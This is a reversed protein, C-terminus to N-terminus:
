ISKYKRKAVTKGKASDVSIGIFEERETQSLEIFSLLASISDLENQKAIEAATRGEADRLRANAGAGLLLDITEKKTAPWGRGVAHMLATRGDNDQCDIESSKILRAIWATMDQDAALMLATRGRNDKMSTNTIPLLQDFFYGGGSEIAHMLANMGNVDQLNPDAGSLAMSFIEPQKAWVLKMLVSRGRSDQANVDSFPLLHLFSLVRNLNGDLDGPEDGLSALLATEGDANADRVNSISSLLRVSQINGARAALILATDGNEGAHKADSLPLLLNFYIDLRNRATYTLLSDGSAYAVRPDAKSNLLMMVLDRSQVKERSVGYKDKCAILRMLATNGDSDVADVDPCAGILIEACRIPSRRLRRSVSESDRIKDPTLALMLATIGTKNRADLNTVPCLKEVHDVFSHKVAVMLANAGDSDQANADSVPLLLELIPGSEYSAACMLPTQGSNNAHGANAGADLLLQVNSIRQAHIAHFLATEGEDDIADIDAHPLLLELMRPNESIAAEFLPRRTFFESSYQSQREEFTGRSAISAWKAVTAEDGDRIAEVLSRVVTKPIGKKNGGSLAANALKEQRMLGIEDPSPASIRVWDAGSDDTGAIWGVVEGGHFAETYGCWKYVGSKVLDRVQAMTIKGGSPKPEIVPNRLSLKRVITFRQPAKGTELVFKFIPGKISFTTFKM